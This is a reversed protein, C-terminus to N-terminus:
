HCASFAVEGQLRGGGGDIMCNVSVEGEVHFINNTSVRVNRFVFGDLAACASARIVLPPCASQDGCRGAIDIALAFGDLPDDVVAIAVDPRADSFLTVGAFGQRQGSECADPTFNWTGLVDGESSLSGELDGGFLGGGGDDGCALAGALAVCLPIWRRALM